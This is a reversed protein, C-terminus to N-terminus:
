TRNFYQWPSVYRDALMHSCRYKLHRSIRSVSCCHSIPSIRPSRPSVSYNQGDNFPNSETCITHHGRECDRHHLHIGPSVVEGEHVSHGGRSWSCPARIISPRPERSHSILNECPDFSSPLTTSKCILFLESARDEWGYMNLTDIMENLFVSLNLLRECYDASVNKGVCIRVVEHIEDRPIGEAKLVACASLVLFRQFNCFILTLRAETSRLNVSATYAKLRGIPSLNELHISLHPSDSADFHKKSADSILFDVADEHSLGLDETAKYWNGAKPCENILKDAFSQWEPKSAQEATPKWCVFDLQKSIKGQIQSPPGGAGSRFTQSRLIRSSPECNVERTRAPVTGSALGSQIATSSVRHQRRCEIVQSELYDIYATDTGIFDDLRTRM